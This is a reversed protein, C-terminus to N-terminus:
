SKLGLASLIGHWSVTPTEWGVFQFAEADLGVAGDISTFNYSLADGVLMGSWAGFVLKILSRIM